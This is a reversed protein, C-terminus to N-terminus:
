IRRKEMKNDIEKGAMVKRAIVTIIRVILGPLSRMGGIIGIIIMTDGKRTTIRLDAGGTATTISAAEIEIAQIEIMMGHSNSIEQTRRNGEAAATIFAIEILVTPVVEAVDIDTNIANM